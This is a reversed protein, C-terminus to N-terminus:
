ISYFNLDRWGDVNKQEWEDGVNTMKSEDKLFTRKEKHQKSEWCWGSTNM